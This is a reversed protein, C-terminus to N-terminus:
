VTPIGLKDVEGALHQEHRARFSGFPLRALNRQRPPQMLEQELVALLLAEDDAESPLWDPDDLAGPLRRQLIGPDAVHTEVIEAVRKIGTQHFGADHLFDAHREHAVGCTRPHMRGVGVDLQRHLTFGDSFELFPLDVLQLVAFVLQEL